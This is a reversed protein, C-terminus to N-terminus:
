YSLIEEQLRFLRQQQQLLQQSTSNPRLTLDALEIRGQAAKHMKELIAPANMNRWDRLAKVQDPTLELCGINDM